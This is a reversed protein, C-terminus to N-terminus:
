HGASLNDISEPTQLARIRRAARVLLPVALLSVVVLRWGGVVAIVSPGSPVVRAVLFTAGLWLAALSVISLKSKTCTINMSPGM